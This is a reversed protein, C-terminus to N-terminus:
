IHGTSSEDEEAGTSVSGQLVQEWEAELTRTTQMIQQTIATNTNM